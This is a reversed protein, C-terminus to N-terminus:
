RGGGLRVPQWRALLSAIPPAIDQVAGTRGEYLQAALLFVAQALDGPVGSWTAAFGADFTVEARGNSPITPLMSGAAVIRPRAMDAVLRWRAPDAATGQGQANFLTLASVAVVPALPLAQSDPWRWQNVTLRFGRVVLAKGTRGEIVGIAARLFGALAADQSASDAFGTGLRLHARFGAVPLAADTLPALETLTM